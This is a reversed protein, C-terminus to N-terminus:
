IFFEDNGGNIAVAFPLEADALVAQSNSVKCQFANVLNWKRNADIAEEVRAFAADVIKGSPLQDCLAVPQNDSLRVLVSNTM